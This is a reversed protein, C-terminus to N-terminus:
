VARYLHSSQSGEQPRCLPNFRNVELAKHLLSSPKAEL